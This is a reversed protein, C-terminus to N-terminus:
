LMRSLIELSFSAHSIFVCIDRTNLGSAKKKLSSLSSLFLLLVSILRWM